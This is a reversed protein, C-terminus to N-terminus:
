RDIVATMSRFYSLAGEDPDSAIPMVEYEDRMSAPMADEFGRAKGVVAMSYEHFEDAGSGPEVVVWVLIRGGPEGVSYGLKRIYPLDKYAELLSSGVDFEQQVTTTCPSAVGRRNFYAPPGRLTSAVLGRTARMCAYLAGPSCQRWFSGM